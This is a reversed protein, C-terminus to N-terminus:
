EGMPVGDWLKVHDGALMLEPDTMYNRWQVEVPVNTQAEITPGPYM